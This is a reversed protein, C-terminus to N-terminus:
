TLDGLRCRAPSQASAFDVDEHIAYSSLTSAELPPLLPSHYTRPDRNRSASRSICKPLSISLTSHGQLLAVAADFADRQQDLSSLVPQMHRGVQHPGATDQRFLHALPWRERSYSSRARATGREQRYDRDLYTSDYKNPSEQGHRGGFLAALRRSTSIMAVPGGVKARMLRKPRFIWSTRSM